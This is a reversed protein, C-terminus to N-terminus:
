AAVPAADVRADAPVGGARRVVTLCLWATLAIFPLTLATGPMGSPSMAAVLLAVPLM